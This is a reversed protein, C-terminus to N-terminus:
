SPRSPMRIWVNPAIHGPCTLPIAVWGIGLRGIRPHAEGVVPAVDALAGAVVGTAEVPVLLVDPTDGGPEDLARELVSRPEEPEPVLVRRVLDFREEALVPDLGSPMEGRAVELKAADVSREHGGAAEPGGVGQGEHAVRHLRTRLLPVGADPDHEFGPRESGAEIVGPRKEAEFGLELLQDSLEVESQEAEVGDLLHRRVDHQLRDVEM